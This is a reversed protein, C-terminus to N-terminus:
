DTRLAGGLPQGDSRVLLCILNPGDGAGDTTLYATRLGPSIESGLYRAAQGTCAMLLQDGATSTIAGTSPDVNFNSLPSGAVAGRDSLSVVEADHPASCDVEDVERFEDDDPVNICDGLELEINTRGNDFYELALGVVVLVGVAVGIGIAFRRGRQAQRKPSPASTANVRPPDWTTM